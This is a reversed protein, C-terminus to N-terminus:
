DLVTQHQKRTRSRSPTKASIINTGYIEDIARMFEWFPGKNCDDIFDWTYSAHRKGTLEKFAGRATQIFRETRPDAKRRRRDAVPTAVLDKRAAAIAPIADAAPPANTVFGPASFAVWSTPIGKRPRMNEPLCQIISRRTDDCAGAWATLWRRLSRSRAAKGLRDLERAKGKSRFPTAFYEKKENGGIKYARRDFYAALFIAGANLKMAQETVSNKEIDPKAISSLYSLLKGLKPSMGEESDEAPTTTM